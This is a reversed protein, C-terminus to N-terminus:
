LHKQVIFSPHYSAQMSGEAGHVHKNLLAAKSQALVTPLFQVQQQLCGPVQTLQGGAVPGLMPSVNQVPTFSFSRSVLGSVYWSVAQM